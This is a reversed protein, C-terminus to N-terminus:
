GRPHHTRHVERVYQRDVHTYLQTTSIDAHGLLEQVAALDAGGELLHTACTHRLTHPSVEKSIEARRAARKVIDWVAARSLPRGHRNLFVRGSGSGRDLEPRVGSLYRDLARRAPRGLPVIREKGGKGFVTCFGDELDVSTTRLDTLESVRMGTAYLCELIARDRWHFPHDSDPSEMLRAVERVSLVVPLRSTMRPTDIRDTPDEDIVGETVLFKFYTKLASTARRVTAPARGLDHLHYVFRRVVDVDIATPREREEQAAFQLFRAIDSRYAQVTRPSSGRELALHDLFLELEFIPPPEYM